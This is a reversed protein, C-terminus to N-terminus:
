ETPRMEYQMGFGREIRGGFDVKPANLHRGSERDQAPQHAGGVERSMERLISLAPAIPVLLIDRDIGGKRDLGRRAATRRTPM